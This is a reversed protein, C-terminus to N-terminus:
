HTIQQTMGQQNPTQIRDDRQTQLSQKDDKPCAPKGACELSM